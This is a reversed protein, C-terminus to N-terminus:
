PALYVEIDGAKGIFGEGAQPLKCTLNAVFEIQRARTVGQLDVQAAQLSRIQGPHMARLQLRNLETGLSLNNESKYRRVCTAIQILTEGLSEAQPDIWTQNAEPWASIHISACGEGAAFLVRYIEDSVYPLFPAFLKLLNSLLHYLTFRAGEHQPSSPDYLRLKCM